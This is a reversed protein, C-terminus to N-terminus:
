ECRFLGMEEVDILEQRLIVSPNRHLPMGMLLTHRMGGLLADRSM